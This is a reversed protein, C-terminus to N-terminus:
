VGPLTRATFHRVVQALREIDREELAGGFAVEGALVHVPSLIAALAQEPDFGEFLLGDLVSELADLDLRRLSAARSRVADPGAVELLSRGEFLRPHIPWAGVVAAPAEESGGADRHERLVDRLALFFAYDP